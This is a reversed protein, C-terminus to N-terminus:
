RCQLTLQHLPNCSQPKNDALTLNTVLGAGMYHKSVTDWFVVSINCVIPEVWM